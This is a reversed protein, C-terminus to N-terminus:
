PPAPQRVARRGRRGVPRRWTAAAIGSFVIVMGCVMIWSVKEQLFAAGAVVTVVPVLYESQTARTPGFRKAVFSYLFFGFLTGPLAGYLVALVGSLEVRSLDFGGALWAIPLVILGATTLRVITIDLSDADLLHKRIHVIGFGNAAVGALVLVFGEWRTEGLGTEGTALLLGVGAFSVLAGIIKRRSMRDDSLRFHAYIMASIPTLTIFLATVGSSQYQLATVFCTMPVATALLGVVSGHLWLARGRPLRRRGFWSFALALVAALPLRLAVLAFPHFQGLAFRSVVLNTGFFVSLLIISPIHSRRFLNM